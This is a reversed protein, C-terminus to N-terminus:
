VSPKRSPNSEHCQVSNMSRSDKFGGKALSIQHLAFCLSRYMWRWGMCAELGLEEFEWLGRAKLRNFAFINVRGSRVIV